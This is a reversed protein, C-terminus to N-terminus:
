RKKVKFTVTDPQPPLAAVRAKWEEETEDYEFGYVVDRTDLIYHTNGNDDEDQFLYGMGLGHEIVTHYLDAFDARDKLYRADKPIESSHGRRTYESPKSVRRLMAIERDLQETFRKAFEDLVYKPIEVM